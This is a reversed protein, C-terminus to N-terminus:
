PNRIKAYGAFTSILVQWENIMEKFPVLKNQLDTHFLAWDERYQGPLWDGIGLIGLTDMLVEVRHAAVALAQIESEPQDCAKPASKGDCRWEVNGPSAIIKVTCTECDGDCEFGAMEADEMDIKLYEGEGLKLWTGDERFQVVYVEGAKAIPWETPQDRTLRLKIESAM